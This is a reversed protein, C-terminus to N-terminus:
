PESDATLMLTDGTQRVSIPLLKALAHAFAGNDGVRYMGSVKLGAVSPDVALKATSYRNMEQAAQALDEKDFMEYGTQWALVHSLDPKDRKEVDNSAVLREGAQLREGQGNPAIDKLAAASRCSPPKSSIDHVSDALFFSRWQALDHVSGTRRQAIGAPEVM